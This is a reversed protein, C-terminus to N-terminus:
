FRAISKSKSTAQPSLKYSGAKPVTTLDEYLLYPLLTFYPSFLMLIFAGVFPILSAGFQILAGLLGFVALRGLVKWFHGAVLAKSAKLSEIVGANQTVLIYSAAFFWVGLIIGPIVLLLFGLSIILISLLSLLTFKWLKKWAVKLTEKVPTIKGNVVNSVAVIVTAPMWFVGIIFAIVSSVGLLVSILLFVNNDTSFGLLSASLFVLFYVLFAPLLLVLMLLGTALAVKILYILNEKKFYIQFSKKILDLVPTLDQM